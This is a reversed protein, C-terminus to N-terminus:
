LAVGVPRVCEVLEDLDEFLGVGGIGGLPRGLLATDIRYPDFLYGSTYGVGTVSEGAM